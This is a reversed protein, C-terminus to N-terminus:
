KWRRSRSETKNEEDSSSSDELHKRKGLHDEKSSVSGSSSAPSEDAHAAKNNNNNNHEPQDENSTLFNNLSSPAVNKKSNSEIPKVCNWGDEESSSSKNKSAEDHAENSLSDNETQAEVRFVNQEKEISSDIEGEELIKQRAEFDLNSANTTV